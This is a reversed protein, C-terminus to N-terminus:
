KGAEMADARARLAAVREVTALALATGPLWKLAGDLAACVKPGPLRKGHELDSVFAASVGLMTALGRLSTGRSARIRQGLTAPQAKIFDRCAKLGHPPNPNSKKVSRQLKPNEVDFRAIWGVYGGAPEGGMRAWQGVTPPNRDVWGGRSLGAM